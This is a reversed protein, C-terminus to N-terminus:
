LSEPKAAIQATMLLNNILLKDILKEQFISWSTWYFFFFSTVTPLKKRAHNSLFRFHLLCGAESYVWSSRTAAPSGKPCSQKCVLLHARNSLGPSMLMSALCVRDASAAGAAAGAGYGEQFPQLPSPLPLQEQGVSFTLPGPLPLKEGGAPLPINDEGGPGAGMRAPIMSPPLWYRVVPRLFYSGQKSSSLLIWFSREQILWLNLPSAWLLAPHEARTSLLVM